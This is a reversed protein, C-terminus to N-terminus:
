EAAVGALELVRRASDAGTVAPTSADLIGVQRLVAAQDWHLREFAIKGERFGIVGLAAVEVRRGTPAVGPLLWDMRIDHTFTMVMEEILLDDSVARAVSALALDAPTQSIFENAYTERIAAKGVASKMIPVLLIYADDTMTTVAADADKLVFEAYTHQQWIEVLDPRKPQKETVM